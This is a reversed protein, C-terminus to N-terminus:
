RKNQNGKKNIRSGRRCMLNSFVLTPDSLPGWQSRKSRQWHPGNDSGVKPHSTAFLVDVM